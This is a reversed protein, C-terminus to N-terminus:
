YGQWHKFKSTGFRLGRTTGVADCRWMLSAQFLSFPPHSYYTSSVKCSASLYAFAFRLVLLFNVALPLAYHEYSCRPVLGFGIPSM